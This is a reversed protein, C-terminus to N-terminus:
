RSSKAHAIFSRLKVPDKVGPASEVGSAADVAYPKLAAAEAVNQPTLGGALITRSLDASGLWAAVLRNGTGGYLGPHFTDLLRYDASTICANESTDAKVRIARIVKVPWGTTASEDEDGHFQLMELGLERRCAEIQDREANVFLGVVIASAGIAERIRCARERDVYRPSPPYFNLGILDAGCAIALKADKPTTVGCIKVRVSM